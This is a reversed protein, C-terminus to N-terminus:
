RGHDAGKLIPLQDNASFRLGNRITANVSHIGDEALLGNRHCAQRLDTCVREMPLINHHVWKGLICVCRFLQHNRGGKPTTELAALWKALDREACAVLRRNAVRQWAIESSPVFDPAVTLWPKLAAKLRDVLDSPVASLEDVRVEFLSQFEWSYPKGTEPHVSPPIVTQGSTLIEVLPHGNRHKFKHAPVKGRFFLTRGRNGRKSVHPAPLAGWITWSIEEDDTDIDIPVLDNYGGAVGINADTFWQTQSDNLPTQRLTNWAYMIPQKGHPHVPVPSYGNRLLAPAHRAFM